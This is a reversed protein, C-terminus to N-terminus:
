RMGLAPVGPRHGDGRFARVTQSALDFAFLFTGLSLAPPSTLPIAIPSAVPLRAAKADLAANSGTSVAADPKPATLAVEVPLTIVPALSFAAPGCSFGSAFGGTADRGLGSFFRLSEPCEIIPLHGAIKVAALPAIFLTIPL